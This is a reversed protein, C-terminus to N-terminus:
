GSVATMGVLGFLPMFTKSLGSIQGDYYNLTNNAVFQPNTTQNVTSDNIGPNTQFFPAMWPSMKEGQIAQVATKRTLLYWALLLCTIIIGAKVLTKKRADM